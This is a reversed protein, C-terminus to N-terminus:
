AAVEATATWFDLQVPGTGWWERPRRAYRDHPADRYLSDPARFSPHRFGLQGYHAALTEALLHYWRPDNHNTWGALSGRRVGAGPRRRRATYHTRDPDLVDAAQTQEAVAPDAIADRGNLIGRAARALEPVHGAPDYNTDAILKFAIVDALPGTIACADDEGWARAVADALEAHDAVIRTATLMAADLTLATM